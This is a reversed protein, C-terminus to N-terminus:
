KEGMKDELLADAFRKIYMLDTEDLLSLGNWPIIQHKDISEQSIYGSTALVDLMDLDLIGVIQALLDITVDKGHEIKSIDSDYLGLEKGLAAQSLKKEKRRDRIIQGIEM